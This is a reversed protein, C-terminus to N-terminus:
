KGWIEQVRKVGGSNIMDVLYEFFDDEDTWPSDLRTSYFYNFTLLSQGNRNLEVRRVFPYRRLVLKIDGDGNLLFHKGLVDLFLQRDVMYAAAFTWVRPFLGVKTVVGFGAMDQRAEDWTACNTAIYDGSDPVYQYRIPRFFDSIFVM